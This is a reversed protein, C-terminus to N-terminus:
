TFIWCTRPASSVSIDMSIRNPLQRGPENLMTFLNVLDNCLERLLSMKAPAISLTSGTREQFRFHRPDLLVQRVQLLCNLAQFSSSMYCTWGINSMNRRNGVVEAASAAPRSGDGDEGDGDSDEEGNSGHYDGGFQEELAKKSENEDLLGMLRSHRSQTVAEADGDPEDPAEPNGRFTKADWTPKPLSKWFNSFKASMFDQLMDDQFDDWNSRADNTGWPEPIINLCGENSSTDFDALCSFKEDESRLGSTMPFAHVIKALSIKTLTGDYPGIPISFLNRWEKRCDKSKRECIVWCVIVILVTVTVSTIWRANCKATLMELRKAM